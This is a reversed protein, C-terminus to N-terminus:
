ICKKKIKSVFEIEQESSKVLYGSETHYLKLNSKTEQLVREFLIVDQYYKLVFEEESLHILDEKMRNDYSFYDLPKVTDFNKIIKDLSSDLTICPLSIGVFYDISIKDEIQIEGPMIWKSYIRPLETLIKSNLIISPYNKYTNYAFYPNNDWYSNSYYALSFDDFTSSNRTRYISVSNDKVYYRVSRTLELVDRKDSELISELYKRSAIFKTNLITRLIESEEELKSSYGEYFYASIGHFLYDNMNLKDM